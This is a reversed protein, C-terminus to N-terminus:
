HDDVADDVGNAHLITEEVLIHQLPFSLFSSFWPFVTRKQFSHLLHFKERKADEPIEAEKVIRRPVGEGADKGAHKAATEFGIESKLVVL